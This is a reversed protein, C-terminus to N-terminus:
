EVGGIAAVLEAYEVYKGADTEGIGVFNGYGDDLEAYRNVTEPVARLRAIEESAREIEDERNQIIEQAQQPLHQLQCILAPIEHQKVRITVLQGFLAAQAAIHSLLKDILEHEHGIFGERERTLRARTSNSEIIAALEDDTLLKPEPM